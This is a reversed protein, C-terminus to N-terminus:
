FVSCAPKQTGTGVIYTILSDRRPAVLTVAAPTSQEVLSSATYVELATFGVLLKNAAGAPMVEVSSFM